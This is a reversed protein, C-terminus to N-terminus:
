RLADGGRGRSAGDFPPLRIPFRRWFAPATAQARRARRSAEAVARPLRWVESSGDAFALLLAGDGAFAAHVLGVLGEQLAAVCRGTGCQLVEVRARGGGLSSWALAHMGSADVSLSVPASAGGAGALAVLGRPEHLWAHFIVVMGRATLVLVYDGSAAHAAISRAGGAAVRYEGAAAGAPPFAAGDGRSLFSADVKTPLAHRQLPGDLGATHVAHVAGARDLFACCPVHRDQSLEAVPDHSPPSHPRALVVGSRYALRRDLLLICGGDLAVAVWEAGASVSMGVVRRGGACPASGLAGSLDAAHTLAAGDRGLRWVCLVSGELLGAASGGGDGAAWLQMNSSGQSICFGKAGAGAELGSPPAAMAAFAGETAGMVDALVDRTEAAAIRHAPAESFHRSAIFADSLAHISLAGDGDAGAESTASQLQPGPAQGLLAAFCDGATDMAMLMGDSRRCIVTGPAPSEAGAGCVQLISFNSAGRRLGSDVPPHPPAGYFDDDDEAAAAPAAGTAAGATREEPRRHLRRTLEAAPGTLLVPDERWQWADRDFDHVASGAAVRLAGSVPDFFAATVPPPPLLDHFPEDLRSPPPPVGRAADLAADFDLVELKPAGSGDQRAIFCSGGASAFATFRKGEGAAVSRQVSLEGDGGARLFTLADATMVAASTAGQWALSLAPGDGPVAVSALSRVTGSRLAGDAEVHLLEVLLAANSRSLRLVRAATGHNAKGRREGRAEDRVAGRARLALVRGRRRGASHVDGDAAGLSFATPSPGGFDMAFWRAGDVSCGLVLGPGLVTADAVHDEVSDAAHPVRCHAVSRLAWNWVAVRHRNCLVVAGDDLLACPGHASPLLHATTAASADAM